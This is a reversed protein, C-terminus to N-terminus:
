TSKRACSAYRSSDMIEPPAQAGVPPSFADFTDLQQLTGLDKSNVICGKHSYHLPFFVILTNSSNSEIIPPVQSSSSDIHDFFPDIHILYSKIM